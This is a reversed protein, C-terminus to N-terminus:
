ENKICETYLQKKEQSKLTKAVQSESGQLSFTNKKSRRQKGRVKRLDSTSLGDGQSLVVM